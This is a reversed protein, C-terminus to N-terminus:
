REPSPQIEALVESFLSEDHYGSDILLERWNDVTCILPECLYSPIIGTGNDYTEADNFEPEEGRMISETMAVVRNVMTRTDKFVSMGQLGALINRVSQFDCDQGTLIPFNDKTYGANVLADTVGQATSDNAAWVADLKKGNPGYGVSSIIDEFRAQAKETNWGETAVALQETQGSPIVLKGSDVYPSLISMAGNYFYLANTDAPDGGILEINFPGAANKLDLTQEIYEGQKVGVLFNDFTVYYSVADTDMILRDYAIVPINKEKAGALVTTLSNGDIAAIVLVACNGAIMDEIQTLQTYIDNDGGYQLDVEYGAAEFASKLQVGYPNWHSLNQTPLSIGIKASFVARAGGSADGEEAQATAGSEVDPKPGGGCAGLSVAVFMALAFALARKLSPKNM